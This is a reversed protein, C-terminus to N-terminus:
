PRSAPRATTVLSPAALERLKALARDRAEQFAALQNPAIPEGTPM